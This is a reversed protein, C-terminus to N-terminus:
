RLDINTYLTSPNEAMLVQFFENDNDLLESRCLRIKELVSTRIKVLNVMRVVMGNMIFNKALIASKQEVAAAAEM